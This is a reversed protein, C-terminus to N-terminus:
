RQYLLCTFFLLILILTSGIAVMLPAPIKIQNEKAPKTKKPPQRVRNDEKVHHKGSKDEKEHHRMSKDEEAHLTVNEDEKIRLSDNEKINEIYNGVETAQQKLSKNNKERPDDTTNQKSDITKNSYKKASLDLITFM